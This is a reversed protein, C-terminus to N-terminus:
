GVSPLDETFNACEVNIAQMCKTFEHKTVQPSIRRFSINEYLRVVAEHNQIPAILEGTEQEQKRDSM